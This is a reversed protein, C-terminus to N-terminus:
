VISAKCFFPNVHRAVVLVIGLLVGTRPDM